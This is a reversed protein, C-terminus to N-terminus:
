SGIQRFINQRYEKGCFPCYSAMLPMKKNVKKGKATTQTYTVHMGTPKVEGTVFNLSTAVFADSCGLKENLQKEIDQICSCKQTSQESM